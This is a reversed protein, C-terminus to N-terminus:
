CGWCVSCAPQRAWEHAYAAAGALAAADAGPALHAFWRGASQRASHRQASHACGGAAGSLWLRPGGAPWDRRVLLRLACCDGAHRACLLQAVAHQFVGADSPHQCFDPQAALAHRSASGPGSGAGAAFTANEALCPLLALINGHDPHSDAEDSSKRTAADDSRHGPRPKKLEGAQAHAGSIRESDALPKGTARFFVDELTPRSLTLRRLPLAATELLRAIQPIAAPGDAAELRVQTEAEGQLAARTFPQQKLLHLAKSVQQPEPLELTILDDQIQAKLDTPAGELVLRGHDMLIVRSCCREIEQTDHSSAVITLGEQQLALLYNWLTAKGCTDLGTTPEDLLLLTPQHVLSCALALRRRMGGSYRSARRQAHDRLGLLDLLDQTRQRLHDGSLGHLRGALLLNGQGSLYPDIGSQQSVYGIRRRDALRERRTPLGFREVQGSTPQLLGLLVRLLSTKGAGNPGLVGLCDGASVELSFNDLARTGDGFTLSVDKLRAIPLSGPMDLPQANAGSLNSIAM